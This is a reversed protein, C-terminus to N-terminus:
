EDPYATAIKDPNGRFEESFDYLLRDRMEKYYDPHERLMLATYNITVTRVTDRAM